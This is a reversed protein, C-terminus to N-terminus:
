QLFQTVPKQHILNEPSSRSDTTKIKSVSKGNSGLPLVKIKDVQTSHSLWRVSAVERFNTSFELLNPSYGASLEFEQLVTSSDSRVGVFSIMNAGHSNFRSIELSILSFLQDDPDIIDKNLDERKMLYNIGHTSGNVLATSGNYPFGKKGVTRFPHATLLGGSLIQFGKEEYFYGFPSLKDDDHSLEEFDLVVTDALSQFGLERARLAERKKRTHSVELPPYKISDSPQYLSNTVRSGSWESEEIELKAMWVPIMREYSVFHFVLVKKETSQWGIFVQELGLKQNNVWRGTSKDILILFPNIGKGERGLNYDTSFNSERNLRQKPFPNFGFQLASNKHPNLRGLDYNGIIIEYPCKEGWIRLRVFRDPGQVAQVGMEVRDLANMWSFDVTLTDEPNYFGRDTFKALKIPTQLVDAYNHFQDRNLVLGFWHKYMEEENMEYLERKSKYGLEKISTKVTRKIRGFQQIDLQESEGWKSLSDYPSFPDFRFDPNKIKLLKEYLTPEMSFWSHSVMRFRNAKKGKAHTTDFDSYYRSALVMEWKGAELCNNFLSAQYVRELASRESQSSHSGFEWALEGDKRYYTIGFREFEKLLFEVIQLGDKKQIAPVLDLLDVGQITFHDGDRNFFSFDTLIKGVKPSKSLRISLKRFNFGIAGSDQIVDYEAPDKAYSTGPTEVHIELSRGVLSSFYKDIEPFESVAFVTKQPIAKREACSNLLLAGFGLCGGMFVMLCGKIM